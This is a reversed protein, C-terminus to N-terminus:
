ILVIYFSLRTSSEEFSISQSPFPNRIAHQNLRPQLNTMWHQLDQPSHQKLEAEEVYDAYKQEFLVCFRSQDDCKRVRHLCPQLPMEHRYLHNLKSAATGAFVIIWEGARVQEKSTSFTLWKRSFTDYVELGDVEPVFEAVFLSKDEHEKVLLEKTQPKFQVADVNAHDSSSDINPYRFSHLISLDQQLSTECTGTFSRRPPIIGFSTELAKDCIRKMYMSLKCLKHKFDQSPFVTAQLYEYGQSSEPSRYKCTATEDGHGVSYVAPFRFCERVSTREYGVRWLPVERENCYM